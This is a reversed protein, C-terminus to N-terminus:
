MLMAEERRRVMKPVIRATWSPRAHSTWKSKPLLLMPPLFVLTSRRVMPSTERASRSTFLTSRETCRLSREKERSSSAALSLCKTTKASLYLAFRLIDFMCFYALFRLVNHKQFLEKSLPASMRVRREVSTASFHAKRMKRRSATKNSNFKVVNHMLLAFPSLHFIFASVRELYVGAFSCHHSTKTWLLM